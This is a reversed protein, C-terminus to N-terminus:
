KETEGWKDIFGAKSKVRRICVGGLFESYLQLSNKFQLYTLM